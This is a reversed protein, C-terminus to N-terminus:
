LRAPRALDDALRHLRALTAPVAPPEHRLKFGVIFHAAAAACTVLTPWGAVAEGARRVIRIVDDGYDEVYSERLLCAYDVARSGSASARGSPRM